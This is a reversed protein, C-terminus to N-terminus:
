FYPKVTRLDAPGATRLRMMRIEAATKRNRARLARIALNREVSFV